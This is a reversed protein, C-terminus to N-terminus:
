DIVEVYRLALRIWGRGDSLRGWRDDPSIVTVTVTEGKNLEGVIPKTDGAGGRINLGDSIVRYKKNDGFCYELAKGIAEGCKETGGEAIMKDLDRQNDIFLTEVLVACPETLRIFGFYDKGSAGMKIKAGRNAVDMERSICGCIEDAAKRGTPSGHYYYTETGRGGGANLHVDVAFDYKGVNVAKIRGNLSLTGDYNILDCQLYEAAYKAVERALRHEHYKRDASVAGPDYGGKSNRGHGVCICIKRSM